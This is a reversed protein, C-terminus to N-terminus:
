SKRKTRWSFGISTFYDSVGHNNGFGGYLDLQLDPTLLYAFGGDFSTTFLGQKLTGYNEVYAGFTSSFPFSLNIFYTGTPSSDNGNWAAGWNTILTFTESLKQSTVLLFRPAVDKIEYAKSLVPLRARIQFGVNPILGKGTYIHYRMGLDLASLGQQTTKLNNQEISESKYEVLSSIEFTETLGFRIVTNSLYGSSQYNSSSISTGFHDFGSQVQFIGTGTTFAGISNGPRGSRISENFQAFAGHIAASFGLILYFVRM